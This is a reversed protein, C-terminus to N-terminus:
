IGFGTSPRLDERGEGQIVTVLIDRGKIRTDGHPILFQRGRRITAIVWSHPWTVERIAHGICSAGAKVTFEEAHIGSFAGLRLGPNAARGTATILNGVTLTAPHASINVGVAAVDVLSDWERVAPFFAVEVPKAPQSVDVM